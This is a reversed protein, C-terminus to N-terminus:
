SATRAAQRTQEAADQASAQAQGTTTQAADRATDRVQGAAGQVSGSLDEKMEQAVDKVRETLEGSSDRIQRGARREAETAPLLTATLMGVGFAIIGVALPNGQTQQAVVRPAQRVADGAQTARDQVADVASSAKDQATGVASSAKDQVTGATDSVTYRAQESTGMVKERLATWRRQAVRKPSTKDALRDVDRTLEARTQEIDQRLRDPEEAM